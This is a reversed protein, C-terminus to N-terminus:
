EVAKKPVDTSLLGQAEEVRLLHGEHLVVPFEGVDEPKEAPESPEGAPEEPEAAPKEPEAAADAAPADGGLASRADTGTAVAAM